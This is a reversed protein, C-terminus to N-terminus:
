KKGNGPAKITINFPKIVPANGCSGAGPGTEHVPVKNEPLCKKINNIYSVALFNRFLVAIERFDGFLKHSFNCSQESPKLFQLKRGYIPRYM